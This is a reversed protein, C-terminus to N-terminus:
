SSSAPAEPPEPADEAIGPATEISEVRYPVTSGPLRVTIEQGANTGTFGLGLPSLYSIIGRSTDVDWPGLIQYRERAGTDLRTVTVQTGFGAADTRIDEPTAERARGLDERMRKARQVLDQQRQRASRYEANDSIDGLSIAHGLADAVKPIEEHVLEDYQSRLKELGARTTLIAEAEAGAKAHAHEFVEPHVEHIAHELVRLPRPDLRRLSQVLSYLRSVEGSGTAELVTRVLKPDALVARAQKYAEDADGRARILGSRLRNTGTALSRYLDEPALAEPCRLRAALVQRVLPVFPDWYREARSLIELLLADLREPNERDLEEVAMDGVTDDWHEVIAALFDQWHDAHAARCANMLAVCYDRTPLEHLWEVLSPANAPPTPESVEASVEPCLKRVQEILRAFAFVLAPRDACETGARALADAVRQLAEVKERPTKVRGLIVPIETLKKQPYASGEALQAAEEAAELAEERLKLTPTSGRGVEIFPDAYIAKKARTWWRTWTGPEVVTGELRKRLDKTNLGDPSDELLLRAVAAPDEAALRRLEEADGILRGEFSEPTVKALASAALALDFRHAPREAFDVIVSNARVDVENVQGLGWSRHRVPEGPKFLLFREMRELAEGLPRRARLGTEDIIRDINVEAGYSGRYAAVLWGRLRTSEGFREFMGRLATLADGWAKRRLLEEALMDAMPAAADAKEDNILVDLMGLSSAVDIAPGELLELWREEVAELGDLRLIRRFDSINM